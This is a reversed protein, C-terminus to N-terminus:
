QAILTEVDLALEFLDENEYLEISKSFHENAKTSNGKYKEIMGLDRFARAVLYGSEAPARELFANLHKTAQTSAGIKLRLAMLIDFIGLKPRNGSRPTIGGISMLIEATVLELFRQSEPASREKFLARVKGLGLWGKAIKGRSLLHIRYQIRAANGLTTDDNEDLTEIFPLLDDPQVGADARSLRAVVRAVAAVRWDATDVVTKSLTEDSASIALDVEERVLHNICRAWAAMAQARTNNESRGYNELWDVYTNAVKLSGEVRHATMMVYTSLQILHSDQMKQAAPLVEKYLAATEDITSRGSDVNIRMQVTKAWITALNLNLKSAMELAEDLLEQARTFKAAHCRALAKMSLCLSLVESAGNRKLRPLHQEMVVNIKRFNGYIDLTRGWLFLMQGFTEDDVLDPQTEILAFAADLQQDVLVVAFVEYAKEASQWLYQVAKKNNGAAAFHTALEDVNAHKSGVPGDELTSAILAHIDRREPALLSEYVADGILAHSFRWHGEGLTPDDEILGVDHARAICAHTDMDPTACAELFATSVQRGRAAAIVLLKRDELPLADFRSLVLHQLNGSVINPPTTSSLYARAGDKAIAGTFQLYRVIEEVFLPNRESKEDVLTVLDEDAATVELLVLILDKVSASSLPSLALKSIQSKGSWKNPIHSRRTVMFRCTPHAEEAEVLNDIISESGTDIWHSDEILFLTNSARSISQLADVCLGRVEVGFNSQGTQEAREVDQGAIRGAIYEFGLGEPAVHKGLKSKIDPLTDEKTWRIAKQIIEILPALPTQQINLNCQGVLIEPLDINRTSFEHILRSKGAGAPGSVEIMPSTTDGLWTELKILEAERGFFQGAGRQMRGQFYSIEDKLAHVRHSVPNGSLGKVKTPGNSEFVAFGEVQNHIADSCIVTGSPTEKQLRMALNVADGLVNIDLREGHGLSGFVVSGGALGIRFMPTLGFEREYEPAEKAMREQVSLAARCADLSANEAATPAGFVAFLADGAYEIIHGGHGEIESRAAGVVNRMLEYTREPGLSESMGTFNVLDACLVATWRREGRVQMDGQM